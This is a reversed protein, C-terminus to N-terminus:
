CIWPFDNDKRTFVMLLQQNEPWNHQNVLPYPCSNEWALTIDDNKEIVEGADFNDHRPRLQKLCWLRATDAPYVWFDGHFLEWKDQYVCDFNLPNELRSHQSDRPHVHWCKPIDHWQHRSTKKQCRQPYWIRQLCPAPICCLAIQILLKRTWGPIILNYLWKPSILCTFCCIHTLTKGFLISCQKKQKTDYLSGQWCLSKGGELLWPSSFTLLLRINTDM